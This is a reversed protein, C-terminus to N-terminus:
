FIWSEKEELFPKKETESMKTIVLCSTEDLFLLSICTVPLHPFALRHKLSSYIAMTNLFIAFALIIHKLSPSSPTPRPKRDFSPATCTKISTSSFEFPQKLLFIFNQCKQILQFYKELGRTIIFVWWHQLISIILACMWFKTECM